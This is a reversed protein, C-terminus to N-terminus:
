DDFIFSVVKKAFEEPKEAHLWHGTEEIEFIEAGPFIKHIASIGTTSIYNSLAGKIFLVPFGSIETNDWIKPDFGTAIEYFNKQISNLNLAWEFKGENNRKLNKLLFSRLKEKPIDISLLKDAEERSKIESLHLKQLTELVTIHAIYEPNESLSYNKPAIDVVILASLLEPYQRVFHMAVKGGMSHGLLIAKSIKNQLFFEHLDETLLSHSFDDSHPSRGHNRLDPIFIEFRNELLKVVSMWNDSSGYLGHLIVLPTGKGTKRFFLEM